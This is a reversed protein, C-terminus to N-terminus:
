FTLLHLLDQIKGTLSMSWQHRETDGWWWRSSRWSNQLRCSLFHFLARLVLKRSVIDYCLRSSLLLLKCRKCLLRISWDLNQLFLCMFWAHLHHLNSRPSPGGSCLWIIWTSLLLLLTGRSPLCPGPWWVIHGPFVPVFRVGDTVLTFMIILQWVGTCDKWLKIKNGKILLWFYGLIPKDQWVPTFTM